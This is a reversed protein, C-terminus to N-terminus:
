GRYTSRKTESQKIIKGKKITYLERKGETERLEELELRLNKGKKKVRTKQSLYEPTSSESKRVRKAKM